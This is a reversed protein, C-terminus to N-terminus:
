LYKAHLEQLSSRSPIAISVLLAGENYQRCIVMFHTYLKLCEPHINSIIVEQFTLRSSINPGLIEVELESVINMTIDLCLLNASPPAAHM